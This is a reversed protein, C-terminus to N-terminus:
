DKNQEQNRALEDLKKLAKLGQKKKINLIIKVSVFGVILVLIGIIAATIYWASYNAYTRWFTVTSSMNSLNFTHTYGKETETFTGNSHLRKYPTTFSFILKVDEETLGTENSLAEALSMGAVADRYTGSGDKLFKPEEGNYYFPVCTQIYKNIFLSEDEKFDGSMPIDVMSKYSNSIVVANKEANYEFANPYFYMVYAYISIFTKQFKITHKQSDFDFEKYDDDSVLDRSIVYQQNKECIYDVKKQLTNFMSKDESTDLADFDYINSFLSVLNEDYANNLQKFYEQLVISVRNQYLYGQSIDIEINSVIAGNSVLRTDYKVEACGFMTLSVLFTFFCLLIKKLKKM